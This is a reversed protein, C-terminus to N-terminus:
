IRRNRAPARNDVRVKDISGDAKRSHFILAWFDAGSSAGNVFSTKEGEIKNEFGRIGFGESADAFRISLQDGVLAEESIANSALFAGVLLGVVRFTKMDM